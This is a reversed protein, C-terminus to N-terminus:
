RRFVFDRELTLFVTNSQAKGDVDSNRRLHEYGASLNWDETLSRTYTANFGTRDIEEVGGAGANDTAAYNVGFAVASVPTIEMSYGLAAQTSLIDDGDTSTDVGRELRATIQGRALDQTYDLSAVIETGGVEGRTAGISAALQGTPLDLARSVTVTNRNGNVSFTRDFLIGASGNALERTLGVSGITGTDTTTSPVARLTERVEARGLTVDLTDIQSMAYTVGFTLERTRRDTRSTDEATFDEQFVRVRGEIVPSFRLRATVAADNTNQDYFDPDVTDSYTEKETGIDVLFGLPADIGTEFTLRARRVERNGTAVTLDTPDLIDDIEFPDLFDLNARSWEADATFRSNAGERIYGFVLGPDDFGADSGTPLNAVRFVGDLLLSLTDVETQKLLGFSLRTDLITATGASVPDLTFNDNVELRSSIGFTLTTGGVDLADQGTAPGTGAVIAIAGSLALSYGLGNKAM